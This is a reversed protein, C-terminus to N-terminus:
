RGQPTFAAASGYLRYLTFQDAFAEQCSGNLVRLGEADPLAKGRMGPSDVVGSFFLRMGALLRAKQPDTM